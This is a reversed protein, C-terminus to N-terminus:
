LSTNNLLNQIAPIYLNKAVLEHTSQKFHAWEDEFFEEYNEYRGKLWQYANECLFDEYPLDIPDYPGITHLFKIPVNVSKKLLLIDKLARHKFYPSHRVENLTNIVIDFNNRNKVRRKYIDYLNIKHGPITQEKLWEAYNDNAPIFGGIPVIGKFPKYGIEEYNDSVVSIKEIEVDQIINSLAIHYRYWPPLDVLIVDPNYNKNAIYIDYVHEPTIGRLAANRVHVDFHEAVYQPWCKIPPRNSNSAGIVLFKTKM